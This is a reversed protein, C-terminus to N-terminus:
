GTVEECAETFYRLVIGRKKAREIESAMGGSVMDGFVWCERCGDLYVMGMFLGMERQAPDEDSLFQPFFLHSTYPIYGQKVIFACYRRTKETNKDTDGAFLSCVYIKQLYEREQQKRAARKEARERRAINGFAAGATPDAYSESNRYM